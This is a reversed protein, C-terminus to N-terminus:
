PRDGRARPSRDDASLGLFPRPKIRGDRSGFQHVAAGGAFLAAFRDTGVAVGGPIFQWRITHALQGSDVLPRAGEKRVLTAPKNAAWRKGDPGTSSVFRQKTTEALREGILALVPKLGSEGARESFRKLAAIVERDDIDITIM